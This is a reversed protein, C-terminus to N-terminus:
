LRFFIKFGNLLRRFNTIFFHISLKGICMVYVQAFANWTGDPHVLIPKYVTTEIKKIRYPLKDGNKDYGVTKQGHELNYTYWQDIYESLDIKDAFLDAIEIIEKNDKYLFYHYETVGNVKKKTERVEYVDNNKSICADITNNATIFIEGKDSCTFTYANTQTLEKFKLNETFYEVTDYYYLYAKGLSMPIYSEGGGYTNGYIINGDTWVQQGRVINNNGAIYFVKGTTDTATTGNVNSVTTQYM